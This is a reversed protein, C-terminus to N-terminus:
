GKRDDASVDASAEAGALEADDDGASEADEEIEDGESDKEREFRRYRLYGYVFCVAGVAFVQAGLEYKGEFAAFMVGLSLGLLAVNFVIVLWWFLAHTAPDIEADTETPDPAEPIPPGLDHPDPEAPESYKPSDVRGSEQPFKGEPPVADGDDDSM